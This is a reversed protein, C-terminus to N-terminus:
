LARRLMYFFERRNESSRKLIIDYAVTRLERMRRLGERAPIGNEGAALEIEERTHWLGDSMLARVREAAASLQKADAVSLVGVGGLKEIRRAPSETRRASFDLPLQGPPNRKWRKKAFNGFEM